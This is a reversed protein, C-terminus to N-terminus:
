RDQWRKGERDEPYLGKILENAFNCVENMVQNCCPWCVYLAVNLDLRLNAHQPVPPRTVSEM